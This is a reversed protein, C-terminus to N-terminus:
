LVGFTRVTLPKEPSRYFRPTEGQAREWLLRAVLQAVGRHYKTKYNACNDAASGTATGSIKDERLLETLIEVAAWHKNNATDEM